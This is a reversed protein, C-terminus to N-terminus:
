RGNLILLATQNGASEATAIQHLLQMNHLAGAHSAATGQCLALMLLLCSIHSKMRLCAKM